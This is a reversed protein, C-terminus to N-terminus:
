DIVRIDIDKYWAESPPGNHVQLCILGDLPMDQEETFEITRVGNLYIEMSPGNAMITLENWDDEILLQEVLGKDAIALLKYPANPDRYRGPDPRFEDLLSGWLPYPSEVDVDNETLVTLIPIARGPIFGIDAQYGYVENLNVRKSRFHVGSNQDGKVMAKINLEFNRYEETTCLYDGKPRPDVLNGGVIADENVSFVSFDGEWGRLTSGDFLSVFDNAQGIALSPM